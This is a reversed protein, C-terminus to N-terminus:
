DHPPFDGDYATTWILRYNGERIEEEDLVLANEYAVAAQAQEYGNVIRDIDRQNTAM